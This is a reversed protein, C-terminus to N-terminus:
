WKSLVKLIKSISEPRRSPPDLCKKAVTRVKTPIKAAELLAKAKSANEPPQGSVAHAFVMAWSYLDSSENVVGGEVEPARYPDDPWEGVAVTRGGDRLKALEFDTLVARTDTLYVYRPSLERRFVGVEHLAELGCAIDMMVRRLEELALPSRKLRLDLREGDIWDDVVWWLNGKPNQPGANHNYAINPHHGVKECVDAHRGVLYGQAEHQYKSSLHALDYFKARRFRGPVYKQGLKQVRWQLGNPATFYCEPVGVPEWEDITIQPRPFAGHNMLDLVTVEEALALSLKKALLEAIDPRVPEENEARSVTARSQSSLGQNVGFRALGKQSLGARARYARLERLIPWARDHAAHQKM